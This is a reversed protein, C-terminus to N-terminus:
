LMSFIEQQPREELILWGACVDVRAREVADIEAVSKREVLLAPSSYTYLRVRLVVLKERAIARTVDADFRYAPSVVAAADLEVFLEDTQIGGCCAAVLHAFLDEGSVFFVAEWEGSKARNEGRNDTQLPYDLFM